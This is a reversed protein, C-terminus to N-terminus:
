KRYDPHFQNFHQWNENTLKTHLWNIHSSGYVVVIKTYISKEIENYLYNNRIDEVLFKSKEDNISICTYEKGLPTNLDCENLNIIEKNSEFTKILETLSYDANIDKDKRLGYDMDGQFVMGEIKLHNDAENDEDFYSMLTFGTIRRFKRMQYDIDTNKEKDCDIGEYFFVYGDTRLSDIKQKINEYYRETNLHVMPVLLVKKNDKEYKAITFSGRKLYLYTKIYKQTISKCCLLLIPITLLFFLDRKKIIFKM